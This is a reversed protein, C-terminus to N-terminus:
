FSLLSALKFLWGSSKKAERVSPVPRMGHCASWERRFLTRDDDTASGCSPFLSVEMWYYIYVRDFDWKRGSVNTADSHIVPVLGICWRMKDGYGWKKYLCVDYYQENNPQPILFPGLNHIYISESEHNDAPFLLQRYTGNVIDEGSTIEIQNTTEVPTQSIYISSEDFDSEESEDSVAYTIPADSGSMSSEDSKVDQIKAHDGDCDIVGWRSEVM